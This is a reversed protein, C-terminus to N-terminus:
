FRPTNSHASLAKGMGFDQAIEWITWGGLGAWGDLIGETELSTILDGATTETRIDVM